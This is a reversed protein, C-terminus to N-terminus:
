NNAIPSSSTSPSPVRRVRTVHDRASSPQTPQTEDFFQARREGGGADRARGEHEVGDLQMQAAQMQRRCRPRCRPRSSRPRCRRSRHEPGKRRADGAVASAVRAARAGAGAATVASGVARAVRGAARACRAARLSVEPSAARTSVCQSVTASSSPRAARRMAAPRERPPREQQRKPVAVSVASGRHRWGRRVLAPAARRGPRQGGGGGGALVATRAAALSLRHAVGSASLRRSFSVRAPRRRRSLRRDSKYM